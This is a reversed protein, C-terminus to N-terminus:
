NLTDAIAKRGLVHGTSLSIHAPLCCSAGGAKADWSLGNVFSKRAFAYNSIKQYAPFNQCHACFKRLEEDKEAAEEEEQTM